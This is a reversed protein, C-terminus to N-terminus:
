LLHFRPGPTATIDGYPASQHLDLAQEKKLVLLCFFTAAAHSRAGGECLAQLSFTDVSQTKLNYLLRLVRQTMRKDEEDQSVAMAQLGNFLQQKVM